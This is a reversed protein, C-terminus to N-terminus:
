ATVEAGVGDPAGNPAGDAEGPGDLIAAAPPRPRRLNLFRRAVAQLMVVSEVLRAEMRRKQKQRRRLLRRCVAQVILSACEERSRTETRTQLVTLLGRNAEVCTHHLEQTRRALYALADEPRRLLLDRLLSDFIEPVHQDRLYQRDAELASSAAATLSAAPPPSAM